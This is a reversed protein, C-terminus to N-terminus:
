LLERGGAWRYGIIRGIGNNVDGEGSRVMEWDGRNGGVIIGARRGHGVARSWKSRRM